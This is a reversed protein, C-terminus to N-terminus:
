GASLIRFLFFLGRLVIVFVMVLHWWECFHVSRVSLFLGASAM